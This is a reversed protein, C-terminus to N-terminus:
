FMGQKRPASPQPQRRNFRWRIWQPPPPSTCKKSAHFGSGRCNSDKTFHVCLLLHLVSTCVYSEQWLFAFCLLYLMKLTMHTQVVTSVDPFRQLQCHMVWKNSKAKLNQKKTLSRPPKLRRQTLPTPGHPGKGQHGQQSLSSVSPMAWCISPTIWLSSLLFSAISPTAQPELQVNM